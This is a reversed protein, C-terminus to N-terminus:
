LYLCIREQPRHIASGQCAKLYVAINTKRGHVEATCDGTRFAIDHYCGSEVGLEAWAAVVFPHMAPWARYAAVDLAKSGINVLEQPLEEGRVSRM